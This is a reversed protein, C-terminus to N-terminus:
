RIIECSIIIKKMASILTSQLFMKNRIVYEEYLEYFKPLDEQSIHYSGGYAGLEKDGIRTHTPKLLSEKTLKHEKLFTHYCSM